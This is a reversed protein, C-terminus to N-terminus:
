ANWSKASPPSSGRGSEGPRSATSASSAARAMALPSTIPVYSRCSVETFALSAAASAIGAPAAGAYDHAAGARAHVTCAHCTRAHVRVRAGAIRRLPLAQVQQAERQHRHAFAQSSVIARAQMQPQRPAM